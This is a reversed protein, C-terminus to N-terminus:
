LDVGNFERCVRLQKTQPQGYMVDRSNPLYNLRVWEGEGAGKGWTM